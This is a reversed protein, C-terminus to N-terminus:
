LKNRWFIISPLGANPQVMLPINTYEKIEKIIELIENPGLSCNVGLADVGLGELLLLWVEQHADLLHEVM